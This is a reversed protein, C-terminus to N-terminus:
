GPSGAPGLPVFTYLLHFTSVTSYQLNSVQRLSYIKKFTKVVYNYSHSTIATNDSRIKTILKCTYIYIHIHPKGPLEAPLSNAQLAPSGPEIGPDPLDGPPPCPRCSSGIGTDKGPSDGRVSSGPPSCDMPNCLTPYLQTVLCLIYLIM